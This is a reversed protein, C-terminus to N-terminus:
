GLLYFFTTVVGAVGAGGVIDLPYHVGAFVRGWSVWLAGLVLFWVYPLQLLIALFIILWASMGHDSPFSKWSMLPLFLLKSKPYTIHPRPERVIKGLILNILWSLSWACLAFFLKGFSTFYDPWDQILVSAGFYGVMALIVYEAGIKGFFDLLKNRGVLSNIKFFLRTNLSM